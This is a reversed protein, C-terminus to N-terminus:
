LIKRVMRRITEAVVGYVVHSSLESTRERITQDEPAASIGLAPLAGEHMLSGLAIGFSAGDKSTAAPYYEAIAGYAAGVVAGFGWHIGEAAIQQGAFSLPHGTIEESIRNGVEVPPEPEGQTRPPFMREALTKAATAALGAVLGAFMGKLLSKEMSGTAENDSMPM